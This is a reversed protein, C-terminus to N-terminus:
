LKEVHPLCAHEIDLITVPASNRTIEQMLAAKRAFMYQAEPLTSWILVYPKDAPNLHSSHTLLREALITLEPDNCVDVMVDLAVGAELGDKVLQIRIFEAISYQRWKRSRIEEPEGDGALLGKKLWNRLTEYRIGIADAAESTTAM